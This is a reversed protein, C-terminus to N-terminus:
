FQQYTAAIYQENAVLIVRFPSIGFLQANILLLSKLVINTSGRMKVMTNIISLGYCFWATM